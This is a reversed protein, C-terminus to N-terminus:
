GQFGLPGFQLCPIFPSSENLTLSLPVHSDNWTPCFHPPNGEVGAGRELPMGPIKLLVCLALNLILSQSQFSYKELFPCPLWVSLIGFLEM